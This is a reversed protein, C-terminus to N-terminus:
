RCKERLFANSHTAHRLMQDRYATQKAQAFFTEVILNFRRHLHLKEIVEM